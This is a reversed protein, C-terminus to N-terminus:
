FKLIKKRGIYYYPTILDDFNIFDKENDEYEVNVIEREDRNKIVIYYLDYYSINM